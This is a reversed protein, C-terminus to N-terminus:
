SSQNIKEIIENVQKIQDSSLDIVQNTQPKPKTETVVVTPQQTQNKKKCNCGM